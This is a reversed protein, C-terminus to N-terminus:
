VPHPRINPAGAYKRWALRSCEARLAPVCMQRIPAPVIAAWEPVFASM